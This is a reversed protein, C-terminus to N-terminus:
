NEDKANGFVNTNFGNFMFNCLGFIKAEFEILGGLTSM